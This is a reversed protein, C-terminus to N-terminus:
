KAARSLLRWCHKCLDHCVPRECLRADQLAVVRRPRMAVVLQVHDKYSALRSPCGIRCGRPREQAVMARVDADLTFLKCSCTGGLLGQASSDVTLPDAPQETM